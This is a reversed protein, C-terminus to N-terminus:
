LMTDMYRNVVASFDELKDQVKKEFTKIQADENEQQDSNHPFECSKKECKAGNKCSINHRKKWTRKDEGHCNVNPNLKSLPGQIYLIAQWLAWM